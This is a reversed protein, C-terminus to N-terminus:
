FKIWEGQQEIIRACRSPMSKGLNGAYERPFSIWQRKIYTSLQKLSSFCRGGNDELLMWKSKDGGYYKRATPLLTSRYLEVM